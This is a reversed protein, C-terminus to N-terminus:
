RDNNIEEIVNLMAELNPEKAVYYSYLEFKEIVKAVKESISLSILKKCFTGLQHTRVLSVFSEATRQSFLMVLKLVDGKMFELFDKSAEKVAIAKYVVLRDIKEPLGELNDSVDEGSLYLLNNIDQISEKLEIINRGVCISNYFGLQKAFDTTAKGVILLNLGKDVSLIAKLANRSSIIIARYRSLQKFDVDSLYRIELLPCIIAEHGLSKLQEALLIAEDIPRTVLIKM